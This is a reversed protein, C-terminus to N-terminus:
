LGDTNFFPFKVNFNLNKFGVKNLYLGVAPVREPIKCNSPNELLEMIDKKSIKGLANRLLAGVMSRVMGYLFGNGRFVFIGANGFTFFRSKTIKRICNDKQASKKSFSRFDHAGSFIGVTKEIQKFDICEPFLYAFRRMFVDHRTGTVLLYVYERWLAEKLPHFESPVERVELVKIDEPLRVNLAGKIEVPRYNKPNTFAVPHCVAHAGSDTRSSGKVKIHRGYLDSVAKELEGQITKIKPQKQFGFYNTGEYQVAAIVSKM